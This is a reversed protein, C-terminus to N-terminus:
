SQDERRFPPADPPRPRDTLVRFACRGDGAQFKEERVVEFGLLRSLLSVTVSCVVPRELAVNLFPCNHEVLRFGGSVEEADM